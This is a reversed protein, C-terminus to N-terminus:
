NLNYDFTMNCKANCPILAANYVNSVSIRTAGKLFQYIYYMSNIHQVFFMSCKRQVDICICELFYWLKGWKWQENLAHTNMTMKRPVIITSSMDLKCRSRTGCENRTMNGNKEKGKANETAGVVIPSPHIHRPWISVYMHPVLEFKKTPCIRHFDVHLAM